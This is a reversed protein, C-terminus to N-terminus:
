PTSPSGRTKKRHCIEFRSERQPRSCPEAPTRLLDAHHKHVQARSYCDGLHKNNHPQHWYETLAFYQEGRRARIYETQQKHRYHRKLKSGGLQGIMITPMVKVATPPAMNLVADVVQTRGALRRAPVPCPGPAKETLETPRVSAQGPWRRIGTESAPLWRVTSKRPM